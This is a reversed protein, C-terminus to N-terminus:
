SQAEQTKPLNSRLQGETALALSHARGLSLLEDQPALEGLLAGVDGAGEVGEALEPERAVAVEHHVAVQVRDLVGGGRVNGEPNRVAGLGGVGGKIEGLDLVDQAQNPILEARHHLLLALTEAEVHPRVLRHGPLSRHAPHALHAVHALRRQEVVM